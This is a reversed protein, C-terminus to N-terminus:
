STSKHCTAESLFWSEHKKCKPMTLTTVNLPAWNVEGGGGGGGHGGENRTGRQLKVKNTRGLILVTVITCCLIFM